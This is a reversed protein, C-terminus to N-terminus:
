PMLRGIRGVAWRLQVRWQAPTPQRVVDVFEISANLQQRWWEVADHPRTGLPHAACIIVRLGQYPVLFDFGEDVFDEDDGHGNIGVAYTPRLRTRRRFIGLVDGGLTHTMQFYRATAARIITSKGTM